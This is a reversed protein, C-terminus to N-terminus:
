RETPEAGMDLSFSPSHLPRPLPPPAARVGGRSVCVANRPQRSALQAVADGPCGRRVGCNASRRSVNHMAPKAIMPDEEEEEVVPEAPVWFLVEADAVGRPNPRWLEGIRGFPM